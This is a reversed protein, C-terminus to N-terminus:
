PRHSTAGGSPSGDLARSDSNFTPVAEGTALSLVSLDHLGSAASASQRASVGAARPREPTLILADKTWRLMVGGLTAGRFDRSQPSARLVALLAEARELRPAARSPVLRAIEGLLVRLVLEDPWALLAASPLSTSTSSRTIGLQQLAAHHALALAQEARTARAALRLLRARDLGHRALLPALARLGARRSPGSLNGPDDFCAQGQAACHAILDDKPICLLPRAITLDGRQSLAAMGALGAPGSGRTLRMLVTEAQDDAHHATVITDAGIAHACEALLDYRAQRGRAQTFRQGQHDWVLTRHPLGLRASLKAVAQAEARSDARLDHDVTAVALNTPRQTWRAALLLLATSDPGGSVALVIGKAASLSALVADPNLPHPPNLM